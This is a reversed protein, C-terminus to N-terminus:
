LECLNRLLYKFFFLDFKECTRFDFKHVEVKEFVVGGDLKEM